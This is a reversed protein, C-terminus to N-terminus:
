RPRLRFVGFLIIVAALLTLLEPLSISRPPM